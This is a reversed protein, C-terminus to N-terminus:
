SRIYHSSSVLVENTGERIFYISDGQFLHNARGELELENFIVTAAPEPLKWFDLDHIFTLLLSLFNLQVNAAAWDKGTAVRIPINRHKLECGPAISM